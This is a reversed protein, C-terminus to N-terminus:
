DDGSVETIHLELIRKTEGGVKSLESARVPWVWIIREVDAIVLVKERLAEDVKAATLFKGVKKEGGLGLPRFRDGVKRSRVTLPLRLKEFDFWEVFGDKQVVFKDLREQGGAFVNAEVIYDGFRTRGPAKIQGADPVRPRAAEPGQSKSIVLQERQRRATFGGPLLVLRGGARGEALRLMREYHRCTLDREGCGLSSLARRLLEVRVERHRKSLAASEFVIKRGTTKAAKLWFGDAEERVQKYFRRAAQSLVSLEEVISGGSEAEL